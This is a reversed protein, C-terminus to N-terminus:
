PNGWGPGRTSLGAGKLVRVIGSSLTRVTERRESGLERLVKVPSCVSGQSRRRGWSTSLRCRPLSGRRRYPSEPAVVRNDGSYSKDMLSWGCGNRLPPDRLGVKTGAEGM